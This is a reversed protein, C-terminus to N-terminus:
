GSHAGDRAEMAVPNSPNITMVIKYQELAEVLDGKDEFERGKQLFAKVAKDAPVEEIMREPAKKPPAACGMVVVLIVIAGFFLINKNM